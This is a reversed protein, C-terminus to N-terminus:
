PTSDSQPGSSRDLARPMLCHVLIRLHHMRLRSLKHWLGRIGMKRLLQMSNRTQSSLFSERTAAYFLRGSEGSQILGSLENLHRSIQDARANTPHVPRFTDDIVLPLAAWGCVGSGDVDISLIMTEKRAGKGDFVFDGLSYAILGDGYRELGQLVHPHHGLVIHFGADVLGQAHRRAEPSPHPTNEDGMHAIAVFVDVDQHGAVWAPFAQLLEDVSAVHWMGRDGIVNRMTTAGFVAVRAGSGHALVVPALADDRARGVGVHAIGQAALAQVTDAIGEDGYDRVHNNALNLVSFRPFAALTGPSARFCSDSEPNPLGRETLVCELNGILLNCQELEDRVGSWPYDQGRTAMQCAVGRALMIDGVARIRVPSERETM